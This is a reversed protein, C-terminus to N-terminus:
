FCECAVIFLKIIPVFFPTMASDLLLPIIGLEGRAFFRWSVLDVFGEDEVVRDVVGVSEKIEKVHKRTATEKKM